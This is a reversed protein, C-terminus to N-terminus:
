PHTLGTPPAMVSGTAIVDRSTRAVGPALRSDGHAPWRFGQGKADVDPPCLHGGAQDIPAAPKQTM